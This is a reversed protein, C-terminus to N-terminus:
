FLMNAHCGARHAFMPRPPEYHNESSGDLHFHKDALEAKVFFANTGSIDCGVLTYGKERGLLEMAKLSAGFFNSGDWVRNKDYPVKWDIDAPFYSNYEIVVVRPSLCDLAKWIWYTNYDIDISVLDPALDHTLKMTENINEMSVLVQKARLVDEAILANFKRRIHQINQDSGDIWLGRWQQTLLYATNNELGDGVGIEVFVKNNTGIRKFIEAIMGDEGQQSYVQFQSQIIRASERSRESALLRDRYESELITRIQAIHDATEAPKLLDVLWRIENIVPLRKYLTKLVNIM